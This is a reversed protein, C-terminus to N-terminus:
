HFEQVNSSIYMKCMNTSINKNLNGISMNTGIYYVIILEPSLGFLILGILSPGCPYLVLSLPPVPNLFSHSRTCM